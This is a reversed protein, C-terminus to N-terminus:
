EDIKKINKNFAFYNCIRKYICEKYIIDVLKDIEERTNILMYINNTQIIQHEWKKQMSTQGYYSDNEKGLKLEIFYMKDCMIVRDPFGKLNTPNGHYNFINRKDLEEKLYDELLEKESKKKKM